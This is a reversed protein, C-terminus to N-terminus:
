IEGPEFDVVTFDNLVAFKPLNRRVSRLSIKWGERGGTMEDFDRLTVIAIEPPLM